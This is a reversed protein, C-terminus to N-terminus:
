GERRFPVGPHDQQFELVEMMTPPPDHADIHSHEQEHRAIAANAWSVAEEIKVIAIDRERNDPCQELIELAFDKAFTRIIKYREPQAGKPVHYTFRNEIDHIDTPM